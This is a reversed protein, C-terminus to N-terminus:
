TKLRGIGKRIADAAKEPDKEFAQPTLREAIVPLPLGQERLKKADEFIAAKRTTGKPRGPDRIAKTAVAKRYRRLISSALSFIQGYSDCRGVGRDKVLHTIVDPNLERSFASFFPKFEAPVRGDRVFQGGCWGVIQNADPIPARRILTPRYHRRVADLVKCVIRQQRFYVLELELRRARASVATPHVRLLEATERGTLCRLHFHLEEDSFKRWSPHPGSRRLRAEHRLPGRRIPEGQAKAESRRNREASLIERFAAGNKRQAAQFKESGAIAASHHESWEASALPNGRNFGWHEKYAASASERKSYWEPNERCAAIHKGVNSRGSTGGDFIAGCNLCVQKKKEAGYALSELRNEPRQLRELEHRDVRPKKSQHQRAKSARLEGAHALRYDRMYDARTNTTAPQTSSEPTDQLESM